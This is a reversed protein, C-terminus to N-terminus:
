ILGTQCDKYGSAVGQQSMSDVLPAAIPLCREKYILDASL